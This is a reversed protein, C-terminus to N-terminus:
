PPDGGTRVAVEPEGLDPRVLEALDCGRATDGLERDRSGVAAQGCDGCTSRAGQPEEAVPSFLGPLRLAVRAVALDGQRARSGAGERRERSIVAPASPMRHNVSYLAAVM